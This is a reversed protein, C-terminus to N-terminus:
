APKEPQWHDYGSLQKKGKHWFSGGITTYKRKPGYCYSNHKICEEHKRPDRLWTTITKELEQWVAAEINSWSLSREAMHVVVGMIKFLDDEMKDMYHIFEAIKANLGIAADCSNLVLAGGLKEIEKYSGAADMYHNSVKKILHEVAIGEDKISAPPPRHAVSHLMLKGRSTLKVKTAKNGLVSTGTQLTTIGGKIVGKLVTSLAESDGVFLSGVAGAPEALLQFLGFAKESASSRTYANTFKHLAKASDAKRYAAEYLMNRRKDSARGELANALKATTAKTATHGRMAKEIEVTLAQFYKLVTGADVSNGEADTVPKNQAGQINKFCTKCNSHDGDKIWKAVANDFVISQGTNWAQSMDIYQVMILIVLDCTPLLYNRCKDSEHIFDAMGNVIRIADNCTGIGTMDASKLRQACKEAKRFHDVARRIGDNANTSLAKAWDAASQREASACNKLWNKNPRSKANKIIKGLVYKGGAIAALVGIAIGGTAVGAIVVGATVALGVGISALKRKDFRYMDRVANRTFHWFKDANGHEAQKFAFQTLAAVRGGPDADRKLAMPKSIVLPETEPM